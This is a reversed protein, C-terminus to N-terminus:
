QVLEQLAVYREHVTNLDALVQDDTRKDCSKVLRDVSKQLAKRAKKFQKADVGDPLSCNKLSLSMASIDNVSSRIKQADGAQAALHMPQLASHFNNIEQVKTQGCNPGCDPHSKAQGFCKSASPCGGCAKKISEVSQQDTQTGSGQSMHVPSNTSQIYKTPDSAFQDLCQESCFYYTNNGYYASIAQDQSVTMGCVPDVVSAQQGIVAGTMGLMLFALIFGILGFRKM